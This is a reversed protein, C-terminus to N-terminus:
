QHSPEPISGVIPGDIYNINPTPIPQPLSPGQAEIRVCAALMALLLVGLVIGALAMKSVERLLQM